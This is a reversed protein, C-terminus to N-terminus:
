TATFPRQTRHGGRGGGAMTWVSRNGIVITVFVKAGVSEIGTQSPVIASHFGSDALTVAVRSSNPFGPLPPVDKTASFAIAMATTQGSTIM